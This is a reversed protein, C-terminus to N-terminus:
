LYLDWDFKRIFHFIDREPDCKNYFIYSLIKFSRKLTQM